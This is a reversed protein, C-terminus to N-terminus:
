CAILLKQCCWSLPLRGIISFAMDLRRYYNEAIVRMQVVSDENYRHSIPLLFFSKLLRSIRASRRRATEHFYM